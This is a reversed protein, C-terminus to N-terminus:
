LVKTFGLYKRAPLDTPDLPTHESQPDDQSMPELELHEHLEEQSM